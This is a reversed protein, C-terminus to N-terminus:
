LRGKHALKRYHEGLPTLQASKSEMAAHWMHPADVPVLLGVRNLRQLLAFVKTKEPDPPPIGIGDISKFELPREPEYEPSLQFKYAAEPFFEHLRRLDDIPIPADVSRLSVFRKVNTKFVPRQEWTGLSQDVHAYVSGPTIKGELNAAAGELADILLTTFVGSGNEETAYQDETSATLISVGDSVEALDSVQPHSGAIGSHCSDLIIVRNLASSQNAWVILDNLAVGDDGTDTDSACLYGGTSELHGHGAFYFLAIEDDTSFLEKIAERLDSRKVASTADEAAMLRCEFNVDGNSHRSLVQQVSKADNVCGYLPSISGYHNIGAILAKRNTM